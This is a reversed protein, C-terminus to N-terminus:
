FQNLPIAIDVVVNSASFSGRSSAKGTPLTVRYLKNSADAATLAAFGMVDVTVGSRVTSYIDFGAVAGVLVTLKGTAAPMRTVNATAAARSAIASTM